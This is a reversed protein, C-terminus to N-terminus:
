DDDSSNYSDLLSSLSAHVCKKDPTNFPLPRKPPECEQHDQQSLVDGYYVGQDGMTSLSGEMPPSRNNNNNNNNQIEDKEGGGGGSEGPMKAQQTLDVLAIKTRKKKPQSANERTTTAAAAGSTVTEATIMPTSDIRQHQDAYPQDEQHQAQNNSNNNPTNNHQLRYMPEQQQPQQEVAGRSRKLRKRTGGAGVGRSSKSTGGGGGGGGGFISSQQVRKWQQEQRHWPSPGYSQDAATCHDDVLTPLLQVAVTNSWGFSQAQRVRAQRERRDQRFTHRLQANSTGDNWYVLQNQTQLARLQDWETAPPQQQQKPAGAQEQLEALLADNQDHEDLDDDGGGDEHRVLGHVDRADWDREQRRIGPGYAFGRHAPDTRITFPHGCIRCKTLFQYIPCSSNDLYNGIREKAANFRTGKGIRTECNECVCPEVLEFRVVQPPQTTTSSNSKSHKTSHPKHQQQQQQQQQKKYWENKGQKKYAGSEYYEPPLYYGDAQTAALSSM